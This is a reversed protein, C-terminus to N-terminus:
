KSEEKQAKIGYSLGAGQYFGAVPIFSVYCDPGIILTINQGAEAPSNSPSFEVLRVDDDCYDPFASAYKALEDRLNIIGNRTFLTRDLSRAVEFTFGQWKKWFSSANNCILLYLGTSNKVTDM